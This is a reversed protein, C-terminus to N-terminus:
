NRGEEHPDRPASDAALLARSLRVEGPEPAQAGLSEAAAREANRKKSAYLAQDARRMVDDLPEAAEDPHAVGYSVGLTLGAGGGERLERALRAGLRRAGEADSDLLLVAFEDGGIRAAFDGARLTRRLAHAVECIAEDGAGHGYRDNIDKLRDLDALLVAFQTGYRLSRASERRYADEFALRNALRTLSDTHAAAGLGAVLREIRESLLRVVVASGVVLGVTSLWRSTAVDGPDVVVLVITYSIAVFLVQAATALRGLFYAAYLVVWLYYMEDGGAAGGHREGNSVIAVSVLVTALAVVVMYAWPPVREGWVVLAIALAASAATVLELGAVDVQVQHPLLLGMLTVIAAAAFLGAAFRAMQM